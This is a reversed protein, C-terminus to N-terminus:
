GFSYLQVFPYEVESFIAKVQSKEIIQKETDAVNLLPQM